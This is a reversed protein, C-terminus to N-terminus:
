FPWRANGYRRAKGVAEAVSLFAQRHTGCASCQRSISPSRRYLLRDKDPLRWLTDPYGHDALSFAMRRRALLCFGLMIAAALAFRYVVSVEPAVVGLQFKIALWSTGWILVTLVYLSLDM